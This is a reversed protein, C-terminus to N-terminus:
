LGNRPQVLPVGDLDVLEYVGKVLVHKVIYPGLWMPQFKGLGLKDIEKDYLLVLDGKSFVRPKITKDYQVKICGKHAGNALTASCWTEDLRALHLLCEGEVSTTPILKMALKLSPIECEIPLIAELGYFLHFPTFRTATRVLTRYAWLADYLFLHWDSKHVWIMHQIMTKLVKNIAEVQGNDQPYYPTSNKHSIGLKTTLGTMIHNWFQRKHGTVIEQLVGFRATIHNFFVYAIM